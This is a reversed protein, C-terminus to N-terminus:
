SRARAGQVAGPGATIEVDTSPSRRGADDPQRRVPQLDADYLRFQDGALGRGAGAAPTYPWTPRASRRTPRRPARAPRTATRSPPCTRPEGYADGRHPRPGGDAGRELGAHQRYAHLHHAGDPGEGGLDIGEYLKQATQMTREAGFRLRINAQQQLTSTTFPPPPRDQRDKQEVKTVVYPVGTSRRSSRTPRPRPRRAEARRRGVEGAGGPLTRRRSRSGAKSPTPERAGRRGADDEARHGRGARRRGRTRTARSAVRGAEAAKKKAFIKSKAPDATWAVGRGAAGAPRHDELVGRDQVGRDRARPGRDAQGRGVARPRREPRAAVKKGLLNSLPFGVVRDMARRAEQAAVRDMDIKSPRQRARGAGGNKTIENFRIRFTRADPRAEARRRHALRDVRGRPRPRQGPLVRNAKDAERRDRRPHGEATRRGSAATARTAARRGRRLPAELRRRHPHRRGGRGEEQAHPLDRVHGYSALVHYGAGLYKNITKAKAPSEVIILNGKRPGSYTERALPAQTVAVSDGNRGPAKRAAAKRPAAAKKRATPKKATPTPAPADPKKRPM